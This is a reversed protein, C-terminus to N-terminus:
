LTISDISVTDWGKLDDAPNGQSQESSNAARYPVISTEPIDSKRERKKDKRKHAGKRHKDDEPLRKKKRKDGREDGDSLWHISERFISLGPIQDKTERQKNPSSSGPVKDDPGGGTIYYVIMVIMYTFTNQSVRFIM